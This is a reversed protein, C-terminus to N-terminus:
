VCLVAIIPVRQVTMLSITKLSEMPAHSDPSWPNCVEHKLIVQPADLMDLVHFGYQSCRMVASSLLVQSAFKIQGVILVFLIRCRSIQLVTHLARTLFFAMSLKKVCHERRFMVTKLVRTEWKGVHCPASVHAKEDVLTTLVPQWCATTHIVGGWNFTLMWIVSSHVITISRPTHSQVRM